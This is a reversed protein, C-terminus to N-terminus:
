HWVHASRLLASKHGSIAHRKRGRANAPQGAIPELLGVKTGEWGTDGM